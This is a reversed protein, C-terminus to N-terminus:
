DDTFEQEVAQLVNEPNGDGSNESLDGSVPTESVFPHACDVEAVCEVEAIFELFEISLEDIEQEAVVCASYCSIGLSTVLLLEPISSSIM